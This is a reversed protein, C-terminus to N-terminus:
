PNNTSQPLQTILVAIEENARSLSVGTHKQYLGIAELRKGQCLLDHIFDPAELYPIELKELILDLKREIRLQANLQVSDTNRWSTGEDFYIWKAWYEPTETFLLESDAFTTHGWQRNIRATAGGETLAFFFQLAQAIKRCYAENEVGLPFTFANM